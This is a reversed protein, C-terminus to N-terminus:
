EARRAIMDIGIRANYALGTTGICTRAPRRGEPFFTSYVGNMPAYDTAFHTLYIRVMVGHQLGLGIGNLVTTLNAAKM